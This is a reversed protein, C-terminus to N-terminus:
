FELAARGGAGAMAAAREAELQRNREWQNWAAPKPKTLRHTIERGALQSGATTLRTAWAGKLWGMATGLIALIPVGYNFYTGYRKMAGLTQGSALAATERKDDQNQIVQDVAGVVGGTGVDAVVKVWEVAM